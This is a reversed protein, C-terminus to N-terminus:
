KVAPYFLKDIKYLAGNAVVFNNVPQRSSADKPVPVPAASPNNTWNVSVNGAVSSFTLPIKFKLSVPDAIFGSYNNSVNNNIAPSALDNYFIRVTPILSGAIKAHYLVHHQLVSDLASYYFSFYTNLDFGVYYKTALSRLEDLNSFGADHFAKNTPALITPLMGKHYQDPMTSLLNIMGTGDDYGLATFRVSDAITIADKYMSLDPNELLVDYLTKTSISSALAGVKYLYGNSARIATGNQSVRVGNFYLGDQEKIYVPAYVFITGGSPTAQVGGNLTSIQIATTSNTLAKDDYAGFTIQSTIRKRLTDIPMADVAQADLGAAIMASDSLAFITFGKDNTVMEALKLRDFARNFLQLSSEAQLVKILNKGEFSLSESPKIEADSKKLCSSLAGGLATLLLLILLNTNLLKKKMMM